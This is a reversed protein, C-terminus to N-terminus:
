QPPIYNSHGGIAHIYPAPAELGEMEYWKAFLHSLFLKVTKRRARADLHGKRLDPHKETDEAKVKDYYARYPGGKGVMVFSKGINYCVSRFRPNWTIKEGKKRKPAKGDVVHMGAYKWLSSVMPFREMGTVPCDCEYTQARKEEGKDKKSYYADRKVQCESTHVQGYILSILQASFIEGVGKVSKLWYNWIAQEHVEKKIEKAIYDELTKLSALINKDVEHLVDLRNGTAVRTKQIDWYTSTLKFLNDPNM